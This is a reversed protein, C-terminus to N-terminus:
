HMIDFNATQTEWRGTLECVSEGIRQRAATATYSHAFDDVWVMDLKGECGVFRARLCIDVLLEIAEPGIEEGSVPWPRGCAASEGCGPARKGRGAFTLKAVAGSGDPGLALSFTSPCSLLRWPGAFFLNAWLEVRGVNEVHATCNAAAVQCRAGSPEAVAEVASDAPASSALGWSVAVAAAAALCVRWM